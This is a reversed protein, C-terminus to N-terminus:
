FQGYEDGYVAALTSADVNDGYGDEDYDDFSGDYEYEGGDQDHEDEGDDLPTYIVRGGDAGLADILEHLGVISAEPGDLDDPMAEEKHQVLNLLEEDPASRGSRPYYIVHTGLANLHDIVMNLDHDPAAAPQKAQCPQRETQKDENLPKQGQRKQERERQEAEKREREKVAREM